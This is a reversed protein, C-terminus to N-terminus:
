DISEFCLNQMTEAIHWSLLGSFIIKLSVYNCLNNKKTRNVASSGFTLTLLFNMDAFGTSDFCPLIFDHKWSESKTNTIEINNCESTDLELYKRIAVM